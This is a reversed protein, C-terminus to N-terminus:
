LEFLPDGSVYPKGRGAPDAVPGGVLSAYAVALLLWTFPITAVMGVGCALIGGLNVLGALLFLGLLGFVKGRTAEVSLKLSELPGAGRDIILYYFQSLRLSAYVLVGMAVLMGVGFVASIVNQDNSGVLSALGGAVAAIVAFAGLTMFMYLLTAVVVRVLFRGGGFIDSFAAQRGRAIDLLVVAQGIGVWIVFILTAISVLGTLAGIMLMGQIAAPDNGGFAPGAGPRGAPGGPIMTATTGGVAALVLLPLYPAITNIVGVGIVTGLCLAWQDKFIEWTRGFVEGVGFPLSSANLGPPFASGGLASRPPTYPNFADEPRDYPNITSM